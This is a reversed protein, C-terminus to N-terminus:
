VGGRTRRLQSVLNLEYDTASDLSAYVVGLYKKISRLAHTIDKFGFSQARIVREEQTM